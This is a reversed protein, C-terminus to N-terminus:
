QLLPMEVASDGADDDVEEVIQPVIRHHQRLTIREILANSFTQVGARGGIGGASAAVRLRHKIQQSRGPLGIFNRM